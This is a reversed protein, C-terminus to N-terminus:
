VSLGAEPLGLVAEVGLTARTDVAVLVMMTAAPACLFISYSIQVTASLNFRIKPIM